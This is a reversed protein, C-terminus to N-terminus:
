KVSVNKEVVTKGSEDLARIRFTGKAPLMLVPTKKADPVVIQDIPVADISSSELDKRPKIQRSFFEDLLANAAGYEGVQSELVSM